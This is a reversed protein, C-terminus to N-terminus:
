EKFRVKRIRYTKIRSSSYFRVDDSPLDKGRLDPPIRLKVVTVKDAYAMLWLPIIGIVHKGRVDDIRADSIVKTNKDVINEEILYQVLGKHRTVVIKESM